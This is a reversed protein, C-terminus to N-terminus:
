LTFRRRTQRESCFGLTQLVVVFRWSGSVFGVCICGEIVSCVDRFGQRGRGSGNHRDVERSSFLIGCTLGAGVGASHNAVGCPESLGAQAVVALVRSGLLVIVHARVVHEGGDDGEVFWTHPCGTDRWRERAESGRVRKGRERVRERVIRGPQNRAPVTTTSFRDRWIWAFLGPVLWRASKYPRQWGGGGVLQEERLLLLAGLRSRPSRRENVSLCVSALFHLGTPQGM